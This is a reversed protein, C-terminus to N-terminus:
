KCMPASTEKSKKWEAFNARYSNYDNKDKENLPRLISKMSPSKGASPNGVLCAYLNPYNEWAGDDIKLNTGVAVGAVVLLNTAVYNTCTEQEAAFQRVISQFNDPLCNIPIITHAQAIEENVRINRKMKETFSSSVDDFGLQMIKDLINTFQFKNKGEFNVLKATNEQTATATATAAEKKGEM